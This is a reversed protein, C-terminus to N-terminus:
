SPNDEKIFTKTFENPEGPDPFVIEVLNPLLIGISYKTETNVEKM